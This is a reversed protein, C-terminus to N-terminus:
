SFSPSHGLFDSTKRLRYFQQFNLSTNFNHWFLRVRKFFIRVFHLFSFTSSCNNRYRTCKTDPFYEPSWSGLFSVDKFFQVFGPASGNLWFKRFKQFPPLHYPLKRPFNGPFRFAFWEVSFEPSFILHFLFERYSIKPFKPIARSTTKKEPFQPFHQEMTWHFNGSICVPIKPQISLVGAFKSHIDRKQWWLTFSWLTNDTSSAVFDTKFRMM